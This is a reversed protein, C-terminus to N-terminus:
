PPGPIKNMLTWYVDLHSVAEVFKDFEVPKVLYSNVGLDYSRAIDIEENSSTLMVVPVARTAPDAKLVRLVGIGDLKPMKMDLLIVHPNGGPRAAYRGRHLMYDVATEGDQVWEVTNVLHRRKLARLTIEADAPSDEVLLIEIRSLDNM